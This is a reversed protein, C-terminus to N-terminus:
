LRCARWRQVLAFGGYEDSRENHEFWGYQNGNDDYDEPNFGIEFNETQMTDMIMRGTRGSQRMENVDFGSQERYCRTSREPIYDAIGDYDVLEGGKFWLLHWIWRGENHDFWGYRNITM